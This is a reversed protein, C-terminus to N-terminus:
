SQRGQQLLWQKRMEERLEDAARQGRAKAIQAMLLDVRVPTEYGKRLWDRAECERRYKETAAADASM